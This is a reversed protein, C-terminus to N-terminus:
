EYGHYVAWACLFEFLPKLNTTKETATYEVRPPIEDYSQRRLFDADTLEQLRDTLTTTPVNLRDQLENFRRPEASFAFEHLIPLTHASGLLTFLQTKAEVDISPEPTNELATLFSDDPFSDPYSM